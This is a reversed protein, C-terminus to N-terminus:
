GQNARIRKAEAILNWACDWQLIALAQAFEENTCSRVDVYRDGIPLLM